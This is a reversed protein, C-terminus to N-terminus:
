GINEAFEKLRAVQQEYKLKEEASPFEYDRFYKMWRSYLSKAVGDANVHHSDLDVEIGKDKFMQERIWRFILEYNDFSGLGQVYIYKGNWQDVKRAFALELQPMMEALLLMTERTIGSPTM